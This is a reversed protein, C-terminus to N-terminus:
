FICSWFLIWVRHWAWHGLPILSFLCNSSLHNTSLWITSLQSDVVSQWADGWVDSLWNELMQCEACLLYCDSSLFPPTGLANNFHHVVVSESAYVRRWFLLLKLFTINRKKFLTYEWTGLLFFLSLLWIKKHTISPFFNAVIKGYYTPILNCTSLKPM